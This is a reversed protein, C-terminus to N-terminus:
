APSDPAIGLEERDRTQYLEYAQTASVWALTYAPVKPMPDGEHFSRSCACRFNKGLMNWQTYYVQQTLISCFLAAHDALHHTFHDTM